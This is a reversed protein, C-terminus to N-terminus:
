KDERVQYELTNSPYHEYFTKLTVGYHEEILHDFYAQEYLCFDELSYYKKNLFAQVAAEVKQESKIIDQKRELFIEHNNTNVVIDINLNKKIKENFNKEYFDAFYFYNQIKYNKLFNNQTLLFGNKEKFNTKFFERLGNNTKEFQKISDNELSVPHNNKLKLFNYFYNKFNKRNDLLSLGFEGAAYFTHWTLKYLDKKQIYIYCFYELNPGCDHTCRFLLKNEDGNGAGNGAHAGFKSNYFNFNDVCKTAVNLYKTLFNGHSGGQFLIVKQEM